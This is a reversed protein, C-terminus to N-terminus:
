SSLAKDIKGNAESTGDDMCGAYIKLLVDVSHGARRAVEPAPVGSNLWLTVGGHRLDYPRAAVPTVRVGPPMGLARAGQWVRYYTDPAYPRGMATRFLVGDPGTGFTDVHHRLIRVLEPPIPVPRVARRGRWKLGREERGQGSDTWARGAEPTSSSLLLLGWGKEPLECDTVKLALAEAPRLAAFYLLAFFAVLRPGRVRGVYTCATLLERVQAPSAVVRRDVEESKHPAKWQVTDIPNTPLEGQEVCYGFLNYLVARKRASTTAAAPAGDQLTACADLVRRTHRVRTDSEAFVSIPVSHAELWALAARAEVPKDDDRTKANYAWKTLAHQLVADKPRDPAADDVMCVAATALAQARASRSTGASGPWKMDVYALCAQHFSRTEAKPWMSEPLGTEVDFAEGRRAAQLLDSRFNEALARTIFAQRRPAPGVKWRVTYPKPRDRRIGLSYIRVDQSIM